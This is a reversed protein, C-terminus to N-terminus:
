KVLKDGKEKLSEPQPYWHPNGEEDYHFHGISIGGPYQPVEKQLCRAHDQIEKLYAKTQDKYSINADSAGFLMGMANGFDSLAQGISKFM